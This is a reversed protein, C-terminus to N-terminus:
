SGVGFALGAMAAFYNTDSSGMYRGEVYLSTTGGVPFDLGAGFQYGFQTDSESDFGEASFRHVLVGAGGFVYPVLKGSTQFGYQLFGMAGYPSTKESSEAGEYSHNNQGYFLDVGAGLGSTGIDFVAGGAIMWGTDAYDGFTGTPFSGGGSIYLTTGQADAHTPVAFGLLALAALFGVSKKLM